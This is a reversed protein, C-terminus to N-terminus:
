TPMYEYHFTIILDDDIMPFADITANNLLAENLTENVGAKAVGILQYYDGNFEIIIDPDEAVLVTGPPRYMYYELDLLEGTFATFEAESHITTNTNENSYEWQLTVIHEEPLEDIVLPTPATDIEEVILAAYYHNDKDFIIPWSAGEFYYIWTYSMDLQTILIGDENFNYTKSISQNDKEGVFSIACDLYSITPHKTEIQLTVTGYKVEEDIPKEDEKTYYLNILIQDKSTPTKNDTTLIVGVTDDNSLFTALQGNIFCEGHAFKGYYNKYVDKFPIIGEKVNPYDISSLSDSAVLENNTYIDVDVITVFYSQIDFPVIGAYSLGVLLLAALVIILLLTTIVKM